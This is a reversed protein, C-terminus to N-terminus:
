SLEVTDKAKGVVLEGDATIGVGVLSVDGVADGGGEGAHVIGADNVLREECEVKTSELRAKRLAHLSVVTLEGDSSDVLYSNVLLSPSSSRLSLMM